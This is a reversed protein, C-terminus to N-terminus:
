DGPIGQCQSPVLDRCTSRQRVLCWSAALFPFAAQRFSSLEGILLERKIELGVAFFFISMLGDNVWLHRSWNLINRGVGLSVDTEWMTHYSHEWPSNAWVLAIFTAALLLIGSSAEM